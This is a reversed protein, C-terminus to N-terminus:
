GFHRVFVLALAKPAAEWFDSLTVSAGTADLLTQDPAAQGAQLHPAPPASM